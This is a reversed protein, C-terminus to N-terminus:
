LALIDKYSIFNASFHLDDIANYSIGFGRSTPSLLITSAPSTSHVPLWKVANV